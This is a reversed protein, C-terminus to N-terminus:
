NSVIKRKKFWKSIKYTLPTIYKQMKVLFKFYVNLTTAYDFKINVFDLFATIPRLGKFVYKSVVFNKIERQSM